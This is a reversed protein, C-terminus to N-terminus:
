RSSDSLEKLPRLEVHQFAPLCGGCIPTESWFGIAPRGKCFDCMPYRAVMIECANLMARVWSDKSIGVVTNGSETGVVTVRFTRTDTDLELTIRGDILKQSM